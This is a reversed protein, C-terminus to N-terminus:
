VGGFAAKRNHLLSRFHSPHLRLPSPQDQLHIRGPLRQLGPAVAVRPGEGAWEQLLMWHFFMSAYFSFSLFFSVGRQGAIKSCVDERNM